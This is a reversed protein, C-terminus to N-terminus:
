KCEPVCNIMLLKSGNIILGSVGIKPFNNNPSEILLNPLGCKINIKESRISKTVRLEIPLFNKLNSLHCLVKNIRSAPVEGIIKSCIV